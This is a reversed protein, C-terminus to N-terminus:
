VYTDVKIALPEDAPTSTLKFEQRGAMAVLRNIEKLLAEDLLAVNDRLTQHHFKKIPKGWPNLAIGLMQRLLNDYNALHEMRDWDADLGLRTVGLVLIQWLEMGTRGTAQKGSIIQKELLQFINEKLDQQGWIWQL